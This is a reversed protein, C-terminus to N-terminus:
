LSIKTTVESRCRAASPCHDPPRPMWQCWCRCGDAALCWSGSGPLLRICTLWDAASGPLTDCETGQWCPINLRVYFMRALLLRNCIYKFCKLTQWSWSDYSLPFLLNNGGSYEKKVQKAEQLYVNWCVSFNFTPRGVFQFVFSTYWWVCCKLAM